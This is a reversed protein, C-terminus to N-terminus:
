NSPHRVSKQGAPEKCTSKDGLHLCASKLHTGEPLEPHQINFCVTAHRSRVAFFRLWLTRLTGRINVQNMLEQYQGESLDSINQQTSTLLTQELFFSPLIMHWSVLIMISPDCCWYRSKVAALTSSGICYHWCSSYMSMLPCAGEM